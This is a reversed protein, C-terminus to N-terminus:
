RLKIGMSQSHISPKQNERFQKLEQEMVAEITKESYGVSVMKQLNRQIDDLANNEGKIKRIANENEMRLYESSNVIRGNMLQYTNNDLHIADISGGLKIM